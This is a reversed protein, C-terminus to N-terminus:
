SHAGTRRGITRFLFFTGSLMQRCAEDLDGARGRLAENICLQKRSGLSVVRANCEQEDDDDEGVDSSARKATHLASPPVSMTSVSVNLPLRLKRLEHLVQALQSHTRSAYYIKTCVPEQSQEQGTAANAGHKLRHFGLGILTARKSYCAIYKEM